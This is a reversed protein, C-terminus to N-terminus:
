FLNEREREREERERERERVCVCVVCMSSCEWKVWDNTDKKFFLKQMIDTWNGACLKKGGWERGCAGFM